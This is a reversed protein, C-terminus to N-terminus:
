RAVTLLSGLYACYVLVLVVGVSRGIPRRRWVLLALLLSSGLMVPFDLSLFGAPVPIPVPSAVAAVGMIALINFINSGIATGVAVGAHRQLASVICTALEPLSTGLAVLTLGVVADSIQLQDAVEVAADVLMRAGLPLGVAGVVIFLTIMWTRTPLGLVWELPASRDAHRHSRATERATYALPVALVALLVVGAFRGLDGAFCLAVFLVSVGLMVVGDRRASREGVALTYAIAATGVVLLANAINSGVVSGLAIGSYGDFVARVVVVLEPLSTGFAVVSLAIVAQPVRVRRALAVAGRVLLDGGMLLYILGAILQIYAV